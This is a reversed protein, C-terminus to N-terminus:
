KVLRKSYGRKVLEECTRWVEDPIEQGIQFGKEPYFKIRQTDGVIINILDERSIGASKYEYFLTQPSTVIIEPEPWVKKFTAYARREMYPKQVVIAKRIVQGSQTLLRRTFSVNEGTNTSRNEIWIKERPIGLSVARDAFLDAEPRDFMKATFEGFGGSMVILPAWGENFIQAGRDAVQIDHSCLVIIVDAPELSMGLRNYNWLSEALQEDTRNDM